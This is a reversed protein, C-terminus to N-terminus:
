DPKGTATRQALRAPHVTIIEGLGCQHHEAV